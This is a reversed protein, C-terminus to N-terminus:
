AAERSSGSDVGPHPKDRGTEQGYRYGWTLHYIDAQMAKIEAVLDEGQSGIHAFADSVQKESVAEVLLNAISFLRDIKHIKDEMESAIEFAKAGDPTTHAKSNAANRNRSM